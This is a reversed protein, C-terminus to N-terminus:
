TPLRAGFLERLLISLTAAAPIALLAGLIGGVEAGLLAAVLVTLSTLQVTHRMIVPHTIHNEINQFVVFFILMVIAATVSTFLSVIIVIIAGLTAGVLPILDLVGVIVALSLSFPVGLILLLIFTPIAALLSLILKGLMYGTVAKYMDRAVRRIRERRRGEFIKLFAEVWKPGEMLMFITLVVVTLAGVFSSFVERAISFASGGISSALGNVEGQSSKLHEIIHYRQLAQGARSSSFQDFYQPYHQVLQRSENVLPPVLNYLFAGVGILLVIFVIGVAAGRRLKPLRKMIWDVIPNLALALVFASLMWVMVTRTAYIFWLVGVFATTILLIKAIVRAPIDM